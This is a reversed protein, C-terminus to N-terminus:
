FDIPFNRSLKVMNQNSMRFRVFPMNKKNRKLDMLKDSFGFLSLFPFSSSSNMFSRNSDEPELGLWPVFLTM